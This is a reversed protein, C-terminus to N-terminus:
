IDNEPNNLLGFLAGPLVSFIIGRGFVTYSDLTIGLLFGFFALSTFVAATKIFEDTSRCFSLYIRYYLFIFLLILSILGGAGCTVLTHLYTNHMHHIFAPDINSNGAFKLVANKYNGAGTGFPNHKAIKLGIKYFELRSITSYNTDTGHIFTSSARQTPTKLGRDSVFSSIIFASMIVATLYVAGLKVAGMKIKLMIAAAISLVALVSLVIWGNRSYPFSLQSAIIFSSIVFATIKLAKNKVLFSFIFAAILIYNLYGSYTTVSMGGNPRPILELGSYFKDLLDYEYFLQYFSVSTTIFIGLFVGSVALLFDKKEDVVACALLFMVFIESGKIASKFLATKDNVWFFALLTFAAFMLMLFIGNLPKINKKGSLLANLVAGASIILLFFENTYVTFSGFLDAPADLPFLFAAFALAMAPYAVSLWSIIIFASAFGLPKFYLINACAAAAFLLFFVAPNQRIKEGPKIFLASSFPGSSFFRSFFAYVSQIVGTIFSDFGSIVGNETIIKM